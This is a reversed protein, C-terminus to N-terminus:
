NRPLEDVTTPIMPTEIEDFQEGLDAKLKKFINVFLENIYKTQHINYHYYPNDGNQKFSRERSYEGLVQDLEAIRFPIVYFRIEISTYGPRMWSPGMFQVTAVQKNYNYRNALSHSFFIQVSDKKGTDKLVFKLKIFEHCIDKFLSQQNM